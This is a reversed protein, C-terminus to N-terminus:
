QCCFCIPARLGGNAFTMASLFELESLHQQALALTQTDIKPRSRSLPKPTDDSLTTPEWPFRAVSEFAKVQSTAASASLVYNAILDSEKNNDSVAGAEDSGKDVNPNKRQMWSLVRATAIFGVTGILVAVGLSGRTM